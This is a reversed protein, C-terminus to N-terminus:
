TFVTREGGQNHRTSRGHDVVAGREIRGKAARHVFSRETRMRSM